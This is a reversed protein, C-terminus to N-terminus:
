RTGAREFRIPDVRVFAHPRSGETEGGPRFVVYLDHEGPANVPIAADFWQDAPRPQVAASTLLRGNPGGARFEITFPRPAADGRAVSQLGFRVRGVGTLDTPGLYLYAGDEFVTAILGETGDAGPGTTTGIFRVDGIEAARVFPPRLVIAEQARLPGIGNQPQDTYSATLIYAGSEGSKHRDLRITGSPSLGAAEQECLSLIYRAMEEAEGRDLDPHASMRHEGWVGGGGEIIKNVLYPISEAKGTYREAVMRFSPGVSAEDVGHCAKCDSGEILTMGRPGQTTQHGMMVAARGTGEPLYQLAVRVRQPDIGQGVAGDEADRVEVRYPLSGTGWYFSRNGEVAIRVSPPANGVRVVQTKETTAGHADRVVLRVPYTGPADFTHTASPGEATTGGGFHWTYTLADGDADVSGAASLRVALPAAGVSDSVALQAEPQRNGPQFVIRSLRATPNKAFWYTGYELVYLSGDPGLEVDMPHDFELRELFPEMKVLKGDKDLTAAMMWGRMWDYHIFKGSYYDPLRNESSPFDDAYYVPGAMANRGGEGVRPFETSRDYPYYIFAPQAPPLAKTGTNNPSNNVPRRPDFYDGKAGSTYNYDLYPKNNAIFMPWGFNGAQRAQNVEDYGKPGLISDVRADPGIEGWYVHGTRKDVSIRYPNRHGMTYIEPRGVEPDSFLNGAPIGYTGDPRPTIRLIKGRLDQSNASSRRADWLQKGPSPDIPAYPSEFPNANDGFSVLLNGRGDFTMSGGTHCCGEDFPVELMVKEDTIGNETYTFRSVRHKLADPVSYTLYLWQNEQFRPDLTLGILGNESKDYVDLRAVVRTQETKPEYLKLAGKRETFFVRGDQAVALETPEDLEGQSLIQQQFRNAEPVRATRVRDYDPVRNKGIAYEIGAGLEDLFATDSFDRSDTGRPTHFVRGGDFERREASRATQSAQQASDTRATGRAGTLENFWPWTRAPQAGVAVVGGGSQVYREVDAQQRHNLSDGSANVFVVASYRALSDEALRAASGATDVIIERDAGVKRLAAMAGPVSEGSPSFVLVRREERKQACGSVLLVSLLAVM